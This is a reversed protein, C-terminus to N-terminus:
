VLATEPHKISYSKRKVFERGHVTELVLEFYAEYLEEYHVGCYM